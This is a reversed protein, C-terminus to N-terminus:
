ESKTFPFKKNRYLYSLLSFGRISYITHFFALAIFYLSLAGQTIFSIILPIISFLLFPISNAIRLHNSNAKSIDTYEIRLVLQKWSWLYSVTANGFRKMLEARSVEHIIHFPILVTLLGGNIAIIWMRSDLLSFSKINYNVIFSIAVASIYILYFITAKNLKFINSAIFIGQKEDDHFFTPDIKNDAKNQPKHATLPM